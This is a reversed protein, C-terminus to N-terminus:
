LPKGSWQYNCKPCRFETPLSEDVSKFDEPPVQDTATQELVAALQADTMGALAPQQCNALLEALLGDDFSGVQQNAAIMRAEHTPEDYDVVVADVSQVGEAELVKARLHGSVLCENRENWVIPDFYDHELSAKLSEWEASGPEPHIRPNKPHPKLQEINLHKVTLKLEKRM